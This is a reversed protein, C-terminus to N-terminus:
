PPQLHDTPSRGGNAEVRLIRRDLRGPRNIHADVRAEPEREVDVLALARRGRRAVREFARALPRTERPDAAHLAAEDAGKSGTINYAGTSRAARSGSSSRRKASM